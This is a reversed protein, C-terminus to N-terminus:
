YILVKQVNFTGDTFTTRVVFMGKGRIRMTTKGHAPLIATLVLKGTIDYVDVASNEEANGAIDVGRGESSPNPYVIVVPDHMVEDIGTILVPYCSSTDSCSNQTVIVAYSGSAGPTFSQNIEGDVPAYGNGCDVWQYTAGSLVADLQNGTQVVSTDPLATVTVFVSDVNSCSTTGDTGTVTYYSDAVPIFALGDTVNNNWSYTDAGSGTLTVANGSCVSLTSANAVVPPLPNIVIDSLNDTGVSPTASSVVRIRYGTGGPTNAPFTITITGSTTSTVSGIDVPSTFDGSGDSLQATFTNGGSFGGVANYDITTTEGACFELVSLDATIIEICPDEELAISEENDTYTGGFETVMGPNGNGGEVGAPNGTGGNGATGAAGGTLTTNSRNIISNDAYFGYASGAAGGGGAGSNGGDGGRGGNGGAGTGNGIGGIGGAGGATGAGANGGNGGNGAIGLLITCDVFSATSAIMFVAVSNGGSMGGTGAVSSAIGGSGGGGGGAGYSDTGSDCGGSGGGGGGGTGDAGLTGDAGTTAAFFVGVISAAATAGNGGGGHVTQGDNGNTGASCTGGGAGRYGYGNVVAVAANSGAIGPTADLDPIGGCDSDMYGGRGGNGGATSPYGPTVSGSGGTGSNDDNCATNYEDSNGGDIGNVAAITADTGNAGASGDAGAGGHVTVRQFKLGTSNVIHIGYSSKGPVTADPAYIELDSVVTPTNIGSGTVTYYEGGQLGGYVTSLGTVAWQSDFGGWLNIGDTLEINENYTGAAIRVNTYGEAVARIMGQNITACPADESGCVTNDVGATSSVHIIYSCSQQATATNIFASLLILTFLSSVAKKM